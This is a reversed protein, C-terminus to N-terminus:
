ELELKLFYLRYSLDLNNYVVFNFKKYWPLNKFPSTEFYIPREKTISDIIVENLLKSGIGTNQFKPDVGIFWLYYMLEKPQANKIKSERDLAKKINGIGICSIM